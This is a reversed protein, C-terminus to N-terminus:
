CGRPLDDSQVFEGKEKGKIVVKAREPEQRITLRYEDSHNRLGTLQSQMFQPRQYLMPRFAMPQYNGAFIKQGVLATGMFSAHM